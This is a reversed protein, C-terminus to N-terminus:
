EGAKEAKIEEWIRLTEAQYYVFLDVSMLRVIGKSGDEGYELWADNYESPMEQWDKIIQNSYVPVYGDAREQLDDEPYTAGLIEEYNDLLDQKIESSSFYMNKDKERFPSQNIKV